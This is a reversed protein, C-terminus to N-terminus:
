KIVKLLHDKQLTTKLAKTIVMIADEHSCTDDDLIRACEKILETNPSDLGLRNRIYDQISFYLIGINAIDMRAIYTKLKLTLDKTLIDVAENLSAPIVQSINEPLRINQFFGQDESELLLMYLMAELIIKVDQYIGPDHSLRPGAVNLVSIQNELIFSKLIIAAEFEECNLIDIHCSPKGVVKAFTHTLLSGGTLKGRSIVVTGHSDIINQRTRERYDQTNMEKLNYKLPVFGDEAKRTKPIWGGHDINFKIATDLAARDAGTQGGSIIKILHKM